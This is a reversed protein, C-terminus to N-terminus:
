GPLAPATPVLHDAKLQKMRAPPIIWREGKVEEATARAIADRRQGSLLAVRVLRVFADPVDAVDLARWVDAIEQDDLARTRRRDAATTRAMGKVIPSVFTDDQIAYWNFFKRVYALVHDAMTAGNNDEIEDLLKNVDARNVASIPRDGFAPFVLREFTRKVHFANGRKAAHRKFFDEFVVAVTKGVVEREVAIAAAPDEKAAVKGAYVKALKRAEDETVNGYLGLKMERRVGALYRYRFVFTITGSPLCRAAYGKVESDAINEGPELADLKKTTIKM